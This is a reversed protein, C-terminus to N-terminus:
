NKQGNQGIEFMKIKKFMKCMNNNEIIIQVNQINKSKEVMKVMKCM